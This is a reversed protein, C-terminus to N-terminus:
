KKNFFKQHIKYKKSVLAIILIITAFVLAWTAVSFWFVIQQLFGSAELGQVSKKMIHTSYFMAGTVFVLGITAGFLSSYTKSEKEKHLDSKITEISNDLDSITKKSAQDFAERTEEESWGKKKLEEKILQENTNKALESKVYDIVKQDM